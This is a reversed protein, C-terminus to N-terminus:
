PRHSQPSHVLLRFLHVINCGTPPSTGHCQGPLLRIMALVCARSRVCASRVGVELELRLGVRRYDSEDRSASIKEAIIAILMHLVLALTNGKCHSSAMGQDYQQTSGALKHVM